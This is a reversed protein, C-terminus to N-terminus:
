SSSNIAASDFENQQEGLRQNELEIEALHASSMDIVQSVAFSKRKSIRQCERILVLDGVRCTSEPDHCLFRKRRKVYQPSATIRSVLKGM